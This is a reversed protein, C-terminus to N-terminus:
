QIRFNNALADLGCARLINQLEHVYKITRVVGCGSCMVEYVSPDRYKNRSIDFPFGAITFINCNNNFGNLTLMEDTLELPLVVTDATVYNLDDFTVCRCTDWEYTYVREDDDSDAPILFWDNIMLDDTWENTFDSFDGEIKIRM